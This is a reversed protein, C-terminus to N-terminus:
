KYAYLQCVFECILANTKMIRAQHGYIILGTMIVKSFRLVSFRLVYHVKLTISGIIRIVQLLYKTEPERIIASRNTGMIPLFMM